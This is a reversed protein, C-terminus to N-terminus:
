EEVAGTVTIRGGEPTVYGEAAMYNIIVNAMDTQGSITCPIGTIDYTGLNDIYLLDVALTFTDEDAIPTGDEWTFETIEQSGVDYTFRIGSIQPFGMWQEPYKSMGWTLVEKLQAGTSEVIYTDCGSGFVALFDNLTLNGAPLTKRLLAAPYLAADAGTYDKIADTVVDGLLTESTRIIERDGVLDADTAGKVESTIAAIEANYGDIVSGVQADLAYIPRLETDAGVVKGGKLYLKSVGINNGNQGTQVIFAGTNGEYGEPLETHSHGDIILDIGEFNDALYMSGQTYDEGFGIHTLAVIVSCGEEALAALCETVTEDFDAMETPHTSDPKVEDTTLGFVGVKIDGCQFVTYQEALHEGTEADIWRASLTPFENLAAVKLAQDTGRGIDDNGLTMVNYGAANMIPAIYEGNSLSAITAGGWTDGANAIIVNEDGYAKRMEAAIGPIFREVDVAGHVDNTHIFVIVQDYDETDGISGYAFATGSFALTLVASLAIVAAVLKNVHKM